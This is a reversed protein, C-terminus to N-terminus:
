VAPSPVAAAERAAGAGDGIIAAPVHGHDDALHGAHAADHAEDHHHEAVAMGIFLASLVTFIYAQIFAILIEHLSVFLAFAVSM